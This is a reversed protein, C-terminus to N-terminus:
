TYVAKERELEEGRRSQSSTFTLIGAPSMEPGKM